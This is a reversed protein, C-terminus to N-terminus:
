SQVSTFDDDDDDWWCTMSLVFIVSNSCITMSPFFIQRFWVNEMPLQNPVKGSESRHRVAVPSACPESCANETYWNLRAMRSWCIKPSESWRIKWIGSLPLYNELVRMQKGSCRLSTPLTRSSTERQSSPFCWSSWVHWSKRSRDTNSGSFIM